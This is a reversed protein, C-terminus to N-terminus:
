KTFTGKTQNWTGAGAAAGSMAAGGIQLGASWPSVSTARANKQRGTGAIRVAEQEAANQALANSKNAEIISIDYGSQTYTSMLEMLPTNGMIGAEGQSVRIMARERAAQRQRELIKLQAADQTQLAREELLRLDALEANYASDATAKAADNQAKISQATAAASIVMSAAVFAAPHCM